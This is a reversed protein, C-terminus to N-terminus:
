RDLSPRGAYGRMIRHIRSINIYLSAISVGDAFMVYGGKGGTQNAREIWVRPEKRDPDDSIVLYIIANPRTEVWDEVLEKARRLM